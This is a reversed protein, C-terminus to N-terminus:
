LHRTAGSDAVIINSPAHNMKCADSTSAYVKIPNNNTTPGVASSASISYSGSYRSVNNNPKPSSGKNGQMRWANDDPVSPDHQFFDGEDESFSGSKAIEAAAAIASADRHVDDKPKPPNQSPPPSSVKTSTSSASSTNAAADPKGDPKTDDKKDSDTCSKKGKLLNYEERLEAACLEAVRKPNHECVMGNELLIGCGCTIAHPSPLICLQM